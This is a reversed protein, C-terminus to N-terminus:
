KALDEDQNQEENTEVEPLTMELELAIVHTFEVIFDVLVQAKIGM